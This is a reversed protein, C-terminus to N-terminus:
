EGVQFELLWTSPILINLVVGTYTQRFIERLCLFVKLADLESFIKGFSPLDTM